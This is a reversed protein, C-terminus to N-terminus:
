QQEGANMTLVMRFMVQGSAMRAIAKIWPCIDALLSFDLTKEADYSSGTIPHTTFARTLM